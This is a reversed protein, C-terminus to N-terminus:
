NLNYESKIIELKDIELYPTYKLIEICHQLMEEETLDTLSEDKKLLVWSSTLIDMEFQTGQLEVALFKGNPLVRIVYNNKTRLAEKNQNTVFGVLKYQSDQKTIINNEMNNKQQQYL